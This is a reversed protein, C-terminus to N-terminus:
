SIERHETEFLVLETRSSESNLHVNEFFLTLRM